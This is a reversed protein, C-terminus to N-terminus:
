YDPQQLLLAFLIHEPYFFMYKLSSIILYRLIGQTHQTSTAFTYQPSALKQFHTNKDNGQIQGM